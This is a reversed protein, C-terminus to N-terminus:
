DRQVIHQPTSPLNDLASRLFQPHLPISGIERRDFWRFLIPVDGEMGNIPGSRHAALWEEPLHMLWYLGVEHFVYGDFRFFNEVVWLLRDARVAIGLEEMMERQLSETMAEGLECRGGPLFWFDGAPDQQLLVRDGDLVVGAVRLNFRGDDHDFTIMTM